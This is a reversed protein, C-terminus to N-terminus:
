QISDAPLTIPIVPIVMGADIPATHPVLTGEEALETLNPLVYPEAAALDVKYGMDGLSAATLRSLPNGAASIFGSMLENRFVTERWHGDATGPGGTNEVPVRKRRGGARLAQYEDMADNGGFTPNATGPRKLLGKLEWITGIGLVHGMEHAIVDNLTGDNAMKVLDATDFSMIGKVPLFATAGASGPRVHTPGAQGLIRGPGDIAAGQALILIDDVLEGDVRVRPLDGVIVRTWRDAAKKFASKQRANLGGLFRVKIKFPSATAAVEKARKADATAEYTEFDAV